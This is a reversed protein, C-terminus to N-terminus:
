GAVGGASRHGHGKGHGTAGARGRRYTGGEDLGRGGGALGPQFPSRTVAREGGADFSVSGSWLDQSKIASMMAAKMLSPYFREFLATEADSIRKGDGHAGTDRLQEDM